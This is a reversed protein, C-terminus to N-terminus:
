HFTKLKAASTCTKILDYATCLQVQIRVCVCGEADPGRELVKGSPMAIGGGEGGIEEETDGM